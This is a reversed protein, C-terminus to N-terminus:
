RFASASASVWSPVAGAGTCVLVYGTADGAATIKQWAAGDFYLMDGTAAGSPCFGAAGATANAHTHASTAFAGTSGTYAANVIGVQTPTMFGSAGATAATHAAGGSGVHSYPAWTGTSDQADSVWTPNAGTATCRYQMYLPSSASNRYVFIPPDIHAQSIQKNPNPDVNRYDIKPHKSPKKTLTSM